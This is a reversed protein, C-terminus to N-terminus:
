AGKMCESQAKSRDDGKLGATKKNCMSMKESQTMSKAPQNSLCTKMFAKREDGKKDGAQTNCAKMKDQQSNAPATDAAFAPAACMLAAAALITLLKNMRPEGGSHHPSRTQSIGQPDMTPPRQAVKAPWDVTDM